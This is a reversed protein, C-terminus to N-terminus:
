FVQEDTVKLLRNYSNTIVDICRASETTVVVKLSFTILLGCYQVDM